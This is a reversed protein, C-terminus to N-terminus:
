NRRSYSCITNRKEWQYSLVGNIGQNQTTAEVSLTIDRGEKGYKKTEVTPNTINITSM